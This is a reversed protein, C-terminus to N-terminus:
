LRVGIIASVNGWLNFLFTPVTFQASPLFRSCIHTTVCSPDKEVKAMM